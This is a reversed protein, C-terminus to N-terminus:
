ESEESYLSSGKTRYGESDTDSEPLPVIRRRKSPRCAARQNARTVRRHPLPRGPEDESTSAPDLLTTEATATGANLDATKATTAPPSASTSIPSTTATITIVTETTTAGTTPDITTSFATTTTQSTASATSQTSTITTTTTTTITKTTTTTGTTPDPTTNITTITTVTTITKTTTTATLPSSELTVTAGLAEIIASTPLPCPFSTHSLKRTPKQVLHYIGSNHLSRAASPITLLPDTSWSIYPAEKSPKIFNTPM